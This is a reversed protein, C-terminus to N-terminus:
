ARGRYFRRMIKLWLGGVPRNDALPAVRRNTGDRSVPCDGTVGRSSTPACVAYPVRRSM